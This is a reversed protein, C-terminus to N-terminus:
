TPLGINAADMGLSARLDEVIEKALARSCAFFLLTRRPFRAAAFNEAHTTKGPSCFALILCTMSAASRLSRVLLGTGQISQM